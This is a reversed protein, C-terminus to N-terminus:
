TEQTGNKAEQVGRSEARLAPGFVLLALIGVCAAGPWSNSYAVYASLAVVGFLATLSLIRSVLMEIGVKGFAVLMKIDPLGIDGMKSMAM